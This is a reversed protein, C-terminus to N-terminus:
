LHEWAIELLLKNALYNLGCTPIYTYSKNQQIQRIIYESLQQNYVYRGNYGMSDGYRRMSCGLLNNM